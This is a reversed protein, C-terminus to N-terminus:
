GLEIVVFQEDPIQNGFLSDSYYDERNYFDITQDESLNAVSGVAIPLFRIEPNDENSKSKVMEIFKDLKM